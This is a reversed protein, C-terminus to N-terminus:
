SDLPSSPSNEKKTKGSPRYHMLAKRILHPSCKKIGMEKAVQRVFRVYPTDPSGGETPESAGAPQNFIDEYVPPLWLGALAQTPSSNIMGADQKLSQIRENVKIEVKKPDIWNYVVDLRQLFEQLPVAMAETSSIQFIEHQLQSKLKRMTAKTAIARGRAENYASTDAKGYWVACLMLKRRLLNLDIQDSASGQAAVIRALREDDFIRALVGDDIGAL